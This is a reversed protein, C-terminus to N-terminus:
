SGQLTKITVTKAKDMMCWVVDVSFCKCVKYICVYWM